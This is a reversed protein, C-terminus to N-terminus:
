ANEPAASVCRQWLSEVVPRLTGAAFVLLALEMPLRYRSHFPGFLSYVLTYTAILTLAALEPVAGNLTARPRRALSIIRRFLRHLSFGLLLLYLLRRGVLYKFSYDNWYDAVDWWLHLFHHPMDYTVYEIWHSPFMSILEQRIAEDEQLESLNRSAKELAVMREDSIWSGKGSFALGSNVNLGVGSMLVPFREFVLYNRILWPSLLFLAVAAALIPAFPRNRLSRRDLWAAYCFSIGVFPLAVPETLIALGGIAGGLIWLRWSTGERMRVLCLWLAAILLLLLTTSEPVIASHFVFAPYGATGLGATLATFPATQRLSLFVVSATLASLIVNVIFVVLFNNAGFWYFLGALLLPYAPQKVATVRTGQTVPDQLKAHKLYQEYFLWNRYEYSISYGNGQILNLAIKADDYYEVAQNGPFTFGLVALRLLLATGFICITWACHHRIGNTSLIESNIM